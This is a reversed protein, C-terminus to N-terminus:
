YISYPLIICAHVISSLTFTSGPAIINSPATIPLFETIPAPEMTGELLFIGLPSTHKKRKKRKEKKRKWNSNTSSKKLNEEKSNSKLIQEFKSIDKWYSVFQIEVDQNSKKNFQFVLDKLKM